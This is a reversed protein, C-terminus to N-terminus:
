FLLDARNSAIADFRTDATVSVYSIKLERM